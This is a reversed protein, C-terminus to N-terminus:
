NVLDDLQPSHTSRQRALHTKCRANLLGTDRGDLTDAGRLHSKWYHCGAGRSTGNQRHTHTHTESTAAVQEGSLFPARTLLKRTKKGILVSQIAALLSCAALKEESDNHRVLQTHTHFLTHKQWGHLTSVHGRSEQLGGPCLPVVQRDLFWCVCVCDWLCESQAVNGYEYKGTTLANRWPSSLPVHSVRMCVLKRSTRVYKEKHGLLVNMFTM